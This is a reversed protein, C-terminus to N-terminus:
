FLSDGSAVYRTSDFPLPGDSMLMDHGIIHAGDELLRQLAPHAGDLMLRAEAARELAAGLAVQVADAADAADLVGLPGVTAGAHGPRQLRVLAYGVVSAGRRLWLLVGREAELWHRLDAPRSRGGCRADWDLLAPDDGRGLLAVLRPSAQAGRLRGLRLHLQPTLPQLGQRVYLALARPDASSLTFRRAGHHPALAHRLLRRGIGSSQAAPDVFLDTIFATRDRRAVGAFGLIHEGRCAVFLEASTHLHALDPGCTDPAPPTTHADTRLTLAWLAPLEATAARRISLADDTM